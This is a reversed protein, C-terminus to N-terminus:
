LFFDFREKPDGHGNVEPLGGSSYREFSFKFIDTFVDFGGEQVFFRRNTLSKATKWPAFFRFALLELAHIVDTYDIPFFDNIFHEPTIELLLDPNSCIKLRFQRLDRLLENIEDLDAECVFQVELKDGQRLYLNKLSSVNKDLPRDQYFIRQDCIPAYLEKQLTEKIDYVNKDEWDSVFVKVQGVRETALVKYNVHLEM